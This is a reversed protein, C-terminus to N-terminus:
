LLAGGLIELTLKVDRDRNQKDLDTERRVDHGSYMPFVRSSSFV